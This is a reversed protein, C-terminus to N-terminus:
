LPPRCGLGSYYSPNAGWVWCDGSVPDELYYTVTFEMRSDFLTTAGEIVGDIACDTTEDLTLQNGIVPHCYNWMAYGFVCDEGTWGNPGVEAIGFNWSTRGLADTIDLTLEDDCNIDPLGDGNVDTPVLGDDYWSVNVAVDADTDTDTDADTDTDTDADSNTHTGVDTDDIDTDSDKDGCSMLVLFALLRTSGM